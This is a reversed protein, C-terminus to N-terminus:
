RAKASKSCQSFDKNPIFLSKGVLDPPGSRLRVESVEPGSNIIRGVWMLGDDEDGFIEVEGLTVRDKSPSDRKVEGKGWLACWGRVTGEALGLSAGFTQADALGHQMFHEYVSHKRSGPRPM